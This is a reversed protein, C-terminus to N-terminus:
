KKESLLSMYDETYFESSSKSIPCGGGCKYVMECFRCKNSLYKKERFQVLEKSNKWIDKLSEDFINGLTCRPDAGCRSLNGNYDVSVKTLGWECPHMYKQYKKDVACMPFPDEFNVRIGLDEIRSIDKLAIDLQNLSLEYEIAKTARGFPIIRQFLVYDIKIGQKIINNIIKLIKNYTFPTLNIVIGIKKGMDSFLKLNKTLMTYAGKKRCFSDHLEQRENHITGEFSDIYEAIDVSESGFDLTNSLISLSCGLSSAYRSAELIYPYKAPDGGIFSINKIENDCLNKIVRKVQNIDPHENCISKNDSDGAYCMPCFHTCVYTIHFAATTLKYNIM